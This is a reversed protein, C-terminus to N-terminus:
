DDDADEDEDLLDALHFDVPEGQDDKTMLLEGLARMPYLADDEHADPAAVCPDDIVGVRDAGGFLSPLVGGGVAFPQYKWVWGKERRLVEGLYWAAGQLLPDMRAGLVHYQDDYHRRVLQELAELSEASGDWVEPGGVDRVWTGFREQRAELWTLLQPHSQPDTGGGASNTM